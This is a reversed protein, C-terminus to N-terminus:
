SQDEQRTETHTPDSPYPDVPAAGPPYTVALRTIEEDDVYGFRVRVPEKETEVAVFAVGPTDESIEDCRAGNKRATSGLVLDTEEPENVALGIRTPFLGRDPLVEKRADQLAAVVTIGVARGQSLLLGLAAEIRKKAERDTVYATLCALEDILVVIHPDGPRPKHTRSVGRLDRQREQMRDVLTELFEAFDLQYARKRGEDDTNNDGYCYRAFLGQGAALEMGGKPDVVWLEVWRDRVASALARVISWLVSGKGAGTRGAVLVHTGRLRLHWPLGDERHAVRLRHLNPKDPIPFLAVPDRLPDTVLFWLELLRPVVRSRVLTKGRFRIVPTRVSRVRCDIAGNSAAFREANGAYDALVQGRLTRVRLRDVTDTSRCRGLVPALERGRFPKVLGTVAVLEDWGRGYRAVRRWWSRLPWSVVLKFSRAHLVRWAVLVTVLALAALSLGHTDFRAHVRWAAYGLGVVLWVPWQRVLWWVVRGIGAAITGGLVTWFGIRFSEARVTPSPKKYAVGRM